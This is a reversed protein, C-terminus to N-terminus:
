LDGFAAGNQAPTPRRRGYGGTRSRREKVEKVQSEEKYMQSFKDLSMFLFPRMTNIELASFNKTLYWAGYIDDHFDQIISM